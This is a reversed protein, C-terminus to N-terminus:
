QSSSVDASVDNSQLPVYLEGDKDNRDIASRLLAWLLL